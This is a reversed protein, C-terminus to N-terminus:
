GNSELEEYIEYKRIIDRNKEYLGMYLKESEREKALADILEDKRKRCMHLSTAAFEKDRKAREYEEKTPKGFADVDCHPENTDIINILM